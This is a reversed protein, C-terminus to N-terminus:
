NCDKYLKKITYKVFIVGEKFAYINCLMLTSVAIQKFCIFKFTENLYFWLAIDIVNPKSWLRKKWVIFSFIILTLVKKYCICLIINKEFIEVSKYM